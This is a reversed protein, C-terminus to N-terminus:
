VRLDQWRRYSGLVAETLRFGLATLALAHHVPSVTFHLGLALPVTLSSGALMLSRSGAPSRLQLGTLDVVLVVWLVASGRHTGLRM